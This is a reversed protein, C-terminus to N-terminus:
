HIAAGRKPIASLKTDRLSVHHNIEELFLKQLAPWANEDLNRKTNTPYISPVVRVKNNGKM